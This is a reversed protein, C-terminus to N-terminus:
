GGLTSGAGGTLITSSRGSRGRSRAITAMRARKIAEDDPLPMVRETAAATTGAPKDKKKKGFIGGVIDGAGRGILLGPIGGIALGAVSGVGKILKKAM